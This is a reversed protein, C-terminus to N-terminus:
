SYNRIEIPMGNLDMHSDDNSGLVTMYVDFASYYNYLNNDEDTGIMLKNFGQKAIAYAKGSPAAYDFMNIVVGESDLRALRPVGITGIVGFAGGVMLIDNAEMCLSYVDGNPAPTYTTDLEGNTNLRCLGSYNGSGNVGEWDGGAIIKGDSQLALAYLYTGNFGSHDGSLVFNTYFDTDETGDSNLRVLFKRAIGNLGGFTGGVLIKGDSQIATSYVDGDFGSGDGSSVLNDYFDTDETGDANLRVLFKRSNGNLEQFAGGVLIKDDSQIATAFVRNNFGSGDGTSILNSHFITDETGYYNLRVLCRRTSNNLGAFNGGVIIKNNSQQTITYVSDDFGSGDGTSTLNNYFQTDEEGSPHIQTLYHRTNGNYDGFAGGILVKGTPQVALARVTGNTYGDNWYPVIHNEYNNDSYKITTHLNRDKTPTIFATTKSPHVADKFNFYYHGTTNNYGWSGSTDFGLTNVLVSELPRQITEIETGSSWETPTTGTAIFICGTTNIVGSLINAINSFDDSASYGSIRYIAGIKLAGSYLVDDNNEKLKAVYRKIAEGSVNTSAGNENTVKLIGTNDIGLIAKGINSASPFSSQKDLEIYSPM